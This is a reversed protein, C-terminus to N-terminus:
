QEPGIFYSIETMGAFAPMWHQCPNVQQVGAKAPNVLEYM